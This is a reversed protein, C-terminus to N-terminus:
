ALKAFKKEIEPRLNRGVIEFVELLNEYTGDGGLFNWFEEAVLIEKYPPTMDFIGQLTYRDYPEPAYPNYPIALMTHIKVKPNLAGRIAVWELLMRKLQIFENINPKATKLDFYYEAGDEAQAFFDIRPQKITKITGRQAVALVRSTEAVKDSKVRSVRLYDIISQITREAETSITNNFEKYQNIARKFHPRAIVAATQEFVSVGLTTNMSQVFSFMAMHDRGMLREHFPMKSTEPLYNALKQRVAKTLLETIEDRQSASLLM